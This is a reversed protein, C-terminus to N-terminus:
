TGNIRLGNLQSNNDIISFQIIAADIM